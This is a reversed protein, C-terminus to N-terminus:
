KEKLWKYTIYPFKPAYYGLFGAAPQLFKNVIVSHKPPEYDSGRYLKDM